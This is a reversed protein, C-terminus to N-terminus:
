WLGVLSLLQGPQQNTPASSPAELVVTIELKPPFQFVANHRNFFFFFQLSFAGLAKRELRCATQM